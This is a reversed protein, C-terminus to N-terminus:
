PGDGAEGLKARGPGDEATEPRRLEAEVERQGDLLRDAAASIDRAAELDATLREVSGQGARLRLLDLRITELAAVAQGLRRHAADHAARLDA